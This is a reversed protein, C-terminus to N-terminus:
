EGDPAPDRLIAEMQAHFQGRSIVRDCGAQRALELRAGQVHPGFALITPPQPLARLQAVALEVDLAPTALDILVLSAANQRVREILSELNAVTDVTAGARQAAGALQSMLMLDTSLHVCRNSM